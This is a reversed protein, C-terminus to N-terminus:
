WKTVKGTQGKGQSGKKFSKKSQKGKSTPTSVTPKQDTGKSTSAGKSQKGPTGHLWIENQRDKGPTGHLWIENQRDKASKVALEALSDGFLSHPSYPQMRAQQKLEKSLQVSPRDLWADREMLILTAHMRAMVETNFTTCKAAAELYAEFMTPDKDKAHQSAAGSFWDQLSLARIAHRCSETLQHFSPQDITVTKFSNPNSDVKDADKDLEPWLNAMEVSHVKYTKTRPSSKVFPWKGTSLAPKGPTKGRVEEDVIRLSTLVLGSLPTSRMKSAATTKNTLSMYSQRSAAATSATSM